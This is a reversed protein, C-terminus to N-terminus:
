AQGEIADAIDRLGAKHVAGLAEIAGMTTAADGNGLARLASAIAELRDLQVWAAYDAAAAQMYAGVLEPHKAAYGPGFMEDIDSKANLMYDHATMWAQRMAGDPTLGGSM